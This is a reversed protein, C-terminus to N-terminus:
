AAAAAEDVVAEDAGAEAAKDEAEAEAATTAAAALKMKARYYAVCNTTTKATPFQEAILELIEANTKGDAIMGKCFAGIGQTPGRKNTTNYKPADTADTADANPTQNEDTMHSNELSHLAARAAQLNKFTSVAEKGQESALANYAAITESMSLKATM